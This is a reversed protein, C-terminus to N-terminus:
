KGSLMAACLWIIIVLLVVDMIRQIFSFRCLTAPITFDRDTTLGAKLPQQCREEGSQRVSLKQEVYGSASPM